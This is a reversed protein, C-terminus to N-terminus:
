EDEFQQSLSKPATDHWAALLAARVTDATAGELSVQTAGRRGWGGRIPEFVNPEARVFAEQQEPTLKVMGGSEQHGLTAFIKGRVRFDPHGMHEKELAEPLSLALSRFEEATVSTGEPSIVLQGAAFRGGLSIPPIKRPPLFAALGNM